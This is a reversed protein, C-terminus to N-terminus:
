KSPDMVRGVFLVQGTQYHQIAYVFPRNFKVAKPCNRVPLEGSIPFASAITAAAAITGEEDVKITAKQVTKYVFLGETAANPSIGTLNARQDFLDTIGLAILQANLDLSTEIDWRPLSTPVDRCNPPADQKPPGTYLAATAADLAAKTSTKPMIIHMRYPGTYFLTADTQNPNKTVTSKGNMTATQKQKGGVSFAANKTLGKEFPTVWKGHFLVANVLIARTEAAIDDPGIASTIQKETVERIWDNIQKASGNPDAAFDTTALKAKYASEVLASFEPVLPFGPKTWLSNAIHVYTGTSYPSENLLQERLQKRQQPDVPVGGSTVADIQQATSGRAGGRLMALAETISYPSAVFNENDAVTAVLKRYLELEFADTPSLKAPVVIAPTPPQKKTSTLSGASRHIIYDNKNDFNGGQIVAGVEYSENLYFETTVGLRVGYCSNTVEGPALPTTPPPNLPSEVVKITIKTGPKYRKGLSSRDWSKVVFTWDFTSTLALKDKTPVHKVARGIFQITSGHSGGAPVSCAQAQSPVTTEKAAFLLLLAIVALLLSRKRYTIRRNSAPSGVAVVRVSSPAKM